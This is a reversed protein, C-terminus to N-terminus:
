HKGLSRLAQRRIFTHQHVNQLDEIKGPVQTGMSLSKQRHMILTSMNAAWPRQVGTLAHQPIELITLLM